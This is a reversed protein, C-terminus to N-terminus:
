RAEGRGHPGYGKELFDRVADPIDAEDPAAAELDAKGEILDIFNLGKPLEPMMVEAAAYLAKARAERITALLVTALETPAMRKYASTPFEIATVDGKGSVTVKVVERPAVATASIATIVRRLEAAKARREQYQAFAEEARDKYIGMM